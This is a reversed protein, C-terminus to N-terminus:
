ASTPHTVPIVVYQFSPDQSENLTACATLAATVDDFFGGPQSGSVAQTSGYPDRIQYRPKGGAPM